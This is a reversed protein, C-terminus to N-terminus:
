LFRLLGSEIRETVFKDIKLMLAYQLDKCVQGRVFTIKYLFIITSIFEMCNQVKKMNMPLRGDNDVQLNKITFTFRGLFSM